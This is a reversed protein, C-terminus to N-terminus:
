AEFTEPTSGFLGSVQLDDGLRKIGTISFAPADPLGELHLGTIWSPGDGLVKPALFLEFADVLRATIFGAITTGGGEVLLGTYGAGFLDALLQPLDIEGTIHRTPAQDDFIRETGKLKNEPDLVIRTPQNFVGPIRATLQPDDLEVTRRGVLVAGCEARLRHAAERAKEGTIWKSEGSPLAIRGDLSVAAKIVVYPRKLRMATLWPRNAGAALKQLVGIEVPIGAERLREAGGAARPNPDPCAIVVREVGARVLAESCPPTRGYHNCPELTVYATAGRAAEGANSLAMAEAHPGGAHEHWGEGVAVGDRVLVCGVHPNPAPFGRASLEVARAM